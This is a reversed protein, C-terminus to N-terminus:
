IPYRVGQGPIPNTEDSVRSANPPHLTIHTPSHRFLNADLWVNGLLAVYRCLPGRSDADAIKRFYPVNDRAWTCRSVFPYVSLILLAM